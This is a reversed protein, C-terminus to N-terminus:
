MLAKCLTPIDEPKLCFVLNREQAVPLILKWAELQGKFNEHFVLKIIKLKGDVLDIARKVWYKEQEEIGFRGERECHRILYPRDGLLAVDDYDVKFFDSTDEIIRFKKPVRNPELHKNMMKLLENREVM